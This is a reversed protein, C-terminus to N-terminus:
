DGTSLLNFREGVEAVPTRCAESASAVIPALTAFLAEREANLSLLHEGCRKLMERGIVLEPRDGYDIVHVEDGLYILDEKVHWWNFARRVFYSRAVSIGTFVVAIMLNTAVAVHIGFLPFIFIQAAVNIAFGIATNFCSEAFSMRRSQTTM